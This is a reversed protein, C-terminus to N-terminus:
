GPQEGWSELPEGQLERSASGATGVDGVHRGLFHGQPACPEAPQPSNSILLSFCMM